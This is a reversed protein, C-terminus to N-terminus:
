WRAAYAIRRREGHLWQAFKLRTMQGAHVRAEMLAKQRFLEALEAEYRVRIQPIVSGLQTMRLGSGAAGTGLMELFEIGEAVTRGPVKVLSCADEDVVLVEVQDIVVSPNM